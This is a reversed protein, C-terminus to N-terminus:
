TPEVADTEIETDSDDPEDAFELKNEELIAEIRHELEEAAHEVEETEERVDNADIHESETEAIEATEEASMEDNAAENLAGEIHDLDIDLEDLNRIEALPPLEELSKLDFYDLFQRTTAYLAPRGPVDRHGVVRVWEREQLTKIITTSVSVGRIEEIESRTIPQRYAILALTEM